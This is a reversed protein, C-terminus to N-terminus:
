KKTRIKEYVEKLSGMKKSPGSSVVVIADSKDEALVTKSSKMAVAEVRITRKFTSEYEIPAFYRGEVIVEVKSKYIGEDLGKAIMAPVPFRYIDEENTEKGTFLYSCDKGEIVLRVKSEKDSGKVRLKFFLESNEELDMTFNELPETMTM